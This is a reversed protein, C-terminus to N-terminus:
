LRIQSSKVDLLMENKVILLSVPQMLLSLFVSLSYIFSFYSFKRLFSVQYCIFLVQQAKTVFRIFVIILLLQFSLTLLNTVISM